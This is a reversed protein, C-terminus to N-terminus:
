AARKIETERIEFYPEDEQKVTLSVKQLKANTKVPEVKFDEIMQDKDMKPKRDIYGWLDLKKVMVEMSMIAKLTIKGLAAVQHMGLRMGIKGHVLDLSRAGSFQEKNLEIFNHLNAGRSAIRDTVTEGTKKDLLLRKKAEERIKQEEETAWMEIEIKKHNLESIELLVGDVEDMSQISTLLGKTKTM